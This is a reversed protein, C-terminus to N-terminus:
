LSLVGSPDSHEKLRSPWIGLHAPTFSRRPFHRALKSRGVQRHGQSAAGPRLIGIITRMEDDSLRDEDIVRKLDDFVRQKFEDLDVRRRTAPCGTFGGAV